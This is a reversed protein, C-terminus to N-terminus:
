ERESGVGKEKCYLTQGVEVADGLARGEAAVERGDPMDGPILEALNVANVSM